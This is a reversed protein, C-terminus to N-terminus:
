RCLTPAASKLVLNQDSTRASGRIRRPSAVSSPKGTKIASPGTSTASTRDALANGQLEHLERLFTAGTPNCADLIAKVRREGPWTETFRLRSASPRRTPSNAIASHAPLTGGTVELDGDDAGKLCPPTRPYSCIGPNDYGCPAAILCIDPRFLLRRFVCDPVKPAYVDAPRAEIYRPRDAGSRRIRQACRHPRDSAVRAGWEPDSHDTATPTADVVRVPLRCSRRAWM